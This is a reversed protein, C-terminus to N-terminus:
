KNAIRQISESLLKNISTFIEQEKLSQAKAFFNLAKIDGTNHSKNNKIYSRKKTGMEFFKLRFDGMINVNAADDKRNKMSFRIGSNLSINRWEPHKKGAGKIGSKKLQSRTEKILIRAANRLANKIARQQKKVSLNAFLNLVDKTETKIM